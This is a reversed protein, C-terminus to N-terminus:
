DHINLPLGPLACRQHHKRLVKYYFPIMVLRNGFYLKTRTNFPLRGSNKMKALFERLKKERVEKRAEEWELAKKILYEQRRSPLKFDESALKVTKESAVLSGVSNRTYVPVRPM